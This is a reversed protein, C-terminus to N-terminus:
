APPPIARLVDRFVGFQLRFAQSSYDQYYGATVAVVLDLEPVIRISQGGRGLAGIWSIKRDNLRTQGRWWLYGYSQADNAKIKEATSAEIWAKSVIQRGNWRGGALVLQGIKAMDRPRLRLGGGADTDGRYRGWATGTIGLPEFLNERAFEDLPRGTAKRIIASVLTLAGTNYFFEQGAAATVPLGLVYRCPDWAMHMRTEDNDDDGTAPTAEVWKLGMSMTLVHVLRIRDKEPSRLDSLEPFFSFIPEDVGRILGRDIAIGVVLSAVSKSVSKMNHLTDADFAITEVRRGYIYGPIEDAGKFYREFALKGDRAVLVAHINADSTALRDATGCLAERNVLSDGAVSGGPWGDGREPPVGCGDAANARVASLPALAAGGLLSIFQRRRM